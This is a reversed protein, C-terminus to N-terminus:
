VVSKRDLPELKLVLNLGFPYPRMREFRRTDPPQPDRPPLRAHETPVFIIANPRGDIRGPVGAALLVTHEGDKRFLAVHMGPRSLHLVIESAVAQLSGARAVQLRVEDPVVRALVNADSRATIGFMSLAFGTVAAGVIIVLVFAAFVYTATLRTALTRFM